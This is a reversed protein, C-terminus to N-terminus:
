PLRSSRSRRALPRWADVSGVSPSPRGTGNPVPPRGDRRPHDIMEAHRLLVVHCADEHDMVVHVKGVLFDIGKPTAAVVGLLAQTRDPRAAGDERAVGTLEGSTGVDEDVVGEHGALGVARAEEHLPHALQM